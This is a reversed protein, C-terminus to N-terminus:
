DGGAPRLVIEEPVASGSATVAQVVVAAVDQPQMMRRRDIGLAELDLGSSDWARTDVQGPCVAIVRIGTSRLEERIAESFGLVGFKSACYASSGPFGKKGAVSSVNVVFGGADQELMARVAARTVHFVGTLNAALVAHWLEATTELLPATRFIGANNVVCGPPGFAQVAQQVAAQADGERSVDGVVALARGGREEVEAAVAALEAQTRALLTVSWGKEGFALALARGIGRGAGTVLVSRNV